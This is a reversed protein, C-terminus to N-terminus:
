TDLEVVDKVFREPVDKVSRGAPAAPQTSSFLGRWLTLSPKSFSPVLVVLIWGRLPPMHYGPV